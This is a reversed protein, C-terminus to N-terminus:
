SQVFMDFQRSNPCEVCEDRREKAPDNSPRLTWWLLRESSIRSNNAVRATEVDDDGDVRGITCM